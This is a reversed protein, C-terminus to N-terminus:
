KSEGRNDKLITDYEKGATLSFFPMIDLKGSKLMQNFRKERLEQRQAKNWTM